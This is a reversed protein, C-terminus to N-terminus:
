DNKKYSNYSPHIEIRSFIGSIFCQESLVADSVILLSNQMRDNQAGNGLILELNLVCARRNVQVLCDALMELVLFNSYGIVPQFASSSNLVGFLGCLFSFIHSFTGKEGDIMSENPRDQVPQYLATFAFCDGLTFHM